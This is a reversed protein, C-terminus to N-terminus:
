LARETSTRREGERELFYAGVTAALTAFVGVSYLALAVDVVRAVATVRGSGAGTITAMAAAYLADGYDHYGGFGYLLQSASLVVVATVSALWGLRSSVLRRASRSGRVASSLIRGIRLTRLAVALRLFRLFPVVLFLLQWWSQRFFVVRDPAVALRTLFEAVFVAWLLWGLAGLATTLGPGTALARAVELLVFIVGLVTVPVDM